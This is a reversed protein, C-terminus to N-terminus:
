VLACKFGYEPLQFFSNIIRQFILVQRKSFHDPMQAHLVIVLMHRQNMGDNRKVFNMGQLTFFISCGIRQKVKIQLVVPNMQFKKIVAIQVILAIDILNYGM